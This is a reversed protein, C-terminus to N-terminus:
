PIGSVINPVRAVNILAQITYWVPLSSPLFVPDMTSADRHGAITFANIIPQINFLNAPSGNNKDM